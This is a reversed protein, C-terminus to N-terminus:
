WVEKTFDLAEQSFAARYWNITSNWTKYDRFAYKYAEKVEEGQIYGTLRFSLSLFAMDDAMIVLEPLVPSQFFIMYWSMLKQKWSSGRVENFGVPHAGNM